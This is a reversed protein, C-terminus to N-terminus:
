PQMWLGVAEFTAIAGAVVSSVQAPHAEGYRDLAVRFEKWFAGTESGRGRFFSDAGTMQDGLAKRLQPLMFQSGLASGELVYCAGLAHAFDPLTPLATFPADPAAEVALAKLDAALSISLTRLPLDLGLNTWGSFREFKAELPRYLQYFRLLCRRYSPLDTISGTLSLRQEVDKHPLETGARLARSLPHLVAGDSPEPPTSVPQMVMDLAAQTM